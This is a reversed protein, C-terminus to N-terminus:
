CPSPHTLNRGVSLGYMVKINAINNIKDNAQSDYKMALSNHMANKFVLLGLITIVIVIIKNTIWNVGVM